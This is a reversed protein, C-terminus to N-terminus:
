TSILLQTTLFPIPISFTITRATPLTCSSRFYFLLLKIPVPLSWYVFGVLNEDCPRLKGSEDFFWTGRKVEFIPGLWYAPALERNQIDVDFLFDEHVPVKVGPDEPANL